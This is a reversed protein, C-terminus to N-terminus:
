FRVNLGFYFAVWILVALVISILYYSWKTCKFYALFAIVCFISGLIFFNSLSAILFTLFLIVFIVLAKVEVLLSLTKYEIEQGRLLKIVDKLILYACSILMITVLLKPFARGSVVDKDGIPIQTDMTAIIFLAVLAVVIGAVIDVPFRITKGDLASAIQNVKTDCYSIFKNM